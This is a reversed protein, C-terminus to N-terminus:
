FTWLSKARPSYYVASLPYGEPKILSINATKNNIVFDCRGEAGEEIEESSVMKVSVDWDMLGLIQQWKRCSEELNEIM